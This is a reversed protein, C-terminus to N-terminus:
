RRRRPSPARRASARSAWAPQDPEAHGHPRARLEPMEAASPVLYDTLTRPSCTATTTTSPRRSCRRPSARSSAATSRARSSSRTSRTAATTSPSTSAAARGRGDGRRGRGRLRPHRVPVHLQAPGLHGPGRPQAGHGDPLDHATFAEFAIAQSRWRRPRAIGRVRFAGRRRVRPRGRGGGAPPRRHRPGQRAGQEAALASPPAASPSRAPATPTWASRALDRHRLAPGRRRRPRRRAPRRRDDVLVDRPGPRAAHHGTVVQVKGTPCCGCPPRSGAAPATTSRPWCGARAGPRVDRRLVVPRHRPAQHRGVDRRASGARGASSTTASWSSRGTSRRGRLRRLRLGARGGVRLPVADAQSSTAAASRPRTSASRPPGARGHGARHRLHGRAPRRRPLRRDADQHHVRRHLHVLLGPHRLRRPLPLRRAAPHGPTVLQLYAGMDALLKVRVATVKGDADAALEIDQIQGRGQIPPWARERTREETWRVPVGLRRALALASCSRPTSTSSRASAAAWRRRSSGSSTSPSASRHRGAHGQPHPPDPHGLLGHVRRRVPQPVVCM